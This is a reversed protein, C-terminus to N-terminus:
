ATGERRGSRGIIEADHGGVTGRNGGVPVTWYAKIDDISAVSDEGIATIRVGIEIRFSLQIELFLIEVDRRAPLVYGNLPRPQSHRHPHSFQLGEERGATRRDLWCYSQLIARQDEPSQLIFVFLDLVLEQCLEFGAQFLELGRTDRHDAVDTICAAM